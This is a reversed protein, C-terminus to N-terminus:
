ERDLLACVELMVKASRYPEGENKTIRIGTDLMEDGINMERKSSCPLAIM